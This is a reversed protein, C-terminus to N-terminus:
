NQGDTEGDLVEYDSENNQLLRERMLKHGDVLTKLNAIEEVSDDTIQKFDFIQRCMPCLGKSSEQELWKLICHLHFNHTCGSGLVLPCGDGPYKCSPCAGEFSVRCIGCLEEVYSGASGEKNVSTAEAEAEAGAGATSLDWHWTCYGKWEIVSVKM